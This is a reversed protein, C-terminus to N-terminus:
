RLNFLAESSGSGDTVSVTLRYCGTTSPSKWNTHFRGDEYVLASNGTTDFEIEDEGLGSLEACSITTVDLEIRSPDTIEAGGQHVTFKIPFAKGAKGGNVEGTDIPNGFDSFTSTSPCVSTVDLPDSGCALEEDDSYGDNDDDADCADGSGDTDTDTQAANPVDVCNDNADLVGDNDADKCGASGADHIAGIQDGTLATGVFLEVEDVRGNLYFQRNDTSGPTDGPNGRHGFKLSSSSSADYALAGSVIPVGDLYISGVGNDRVAAVHMWTNARLTQVPSILIESSGGRGLALRNGALKTLTWGTPSSFNEVYKEVIVQEGSIDNFYVWLDVTFDGTGVNLAPDHSVDVFDGNGDLAFSQEVLDAAFGADGILTGHRGAVIDDANGDGPWWGTPSFGPATPGQAVCANAATAAGVFTPLGLIGVALVLVILGRWRGNTAQRTGYEAM